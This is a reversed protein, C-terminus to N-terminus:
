GRLLAVESGVHDTTPAVFRSPEARLGHEAAEAALESASVLALEIVDEAASREGGPGILHRIREIRMMGPRLRVAMPQSVFRWGDREGVDPTPLDVRDDFPEVADALALAVLGGPALARRASAFFGARDGLLQITQMPVAVLAFERGGLDFGAADAAVTDIELGAAAARERLAGLLDPDLDLATVAHGAAALPLAVRGTGAGVDLVPGGAAAALERWLDLDAAYSGCEVDHWVVHPNV